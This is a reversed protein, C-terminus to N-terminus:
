DSMYDKIYKEQKINPNPITMIDPLADWDIGHVKPEFGLLMGTYPHVRAIYKSHFGSHSIISFGIIWQTPKGDYYPLKCELGIYLAGSPLEVQLKQKKELNKLLVAKAEEETLINSKQAQQWSIFLIATVIVVLILFGEREKFYGQTFAYYMAGIYIFFIIIYTSPINRLMDKIGSDRDSKVGEYIEETETRM